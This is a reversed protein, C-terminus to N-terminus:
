AGATAGAAQLGAYVPQTPALWVRGTGQFTQLLGEGSTVADALSGGAREVTFRVDGTRLLAFSGDVQLTEDVLDVAVVERRPVPIRFAVIGSGTLETQYRGEGGAMRASFSEVKHASVQVGDECCYFLGQDAYVTAAGLAEGGLAERGLQALWVHGFTPELYLEGRGRYLPKFMTEGTRAAALAGRMLGGLGGGAGTNSEMRIHGKLFQLAGPETRVADDTLRVRLQRLRAGARNLAYLREVAAIPESGALAQYELLEFTTAGRTVTEVVRFPPEPAPADNM